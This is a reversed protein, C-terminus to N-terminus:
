ASVVAADCYRRAFFDLASGEPTKAEVVDVNQSRAFLRPSNQKKRFLKGSVHQAFGGRLKVRAGECQTM